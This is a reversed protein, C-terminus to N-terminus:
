RQPLGGPLWHQLIRALESLELPKAVYDDMGAKLFRERDGEGGHGTMAIVPLAATGARSRIEAVTQLGDM